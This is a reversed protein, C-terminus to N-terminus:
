VLAPSTTDDEPSTFLESINWNCVVDFEYFYLEKKKHINCIRSSYGM